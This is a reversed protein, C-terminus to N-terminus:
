KVRKKEAIVAGTITINVRNVDREIVQAVLNRLQEQITQLRELVPVSAQISATDDLRPIPLPARVSLALGGRAESVDVSVDRRDVSLTSAAAEEAVKILVREKVAIRGSLSPQGDEAAVVRPPRGGAPGDETTAGM